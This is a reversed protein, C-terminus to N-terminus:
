ETEVILGDARMAAILDSLCRPECAVSAGYKQWSEIEVHEEVWRHAVATMPTLMAYSRYDVALVDAAM